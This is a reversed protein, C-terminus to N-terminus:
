ENSKNKSQQNTKTKSYFVHGGITAVQKYPWLPDINISHFFLTSKPVVDKHKGLVMVEYAVQEAVKYNWNNKNPEPKNECVWSFQCIIRDNIKTKQYVVNCPNNAFGYAVRNMVVRAVAAQGLLSEGSAEYFINKAMCKLQALQSPPLENIKPPTPVVHQNEDIESTTLLLVLVLSAAFLKNLISLSM